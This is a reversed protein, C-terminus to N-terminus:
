KLLTLRRIQSFEGAVIRYFYVGSSFEDADWRVSHDGASMDRDILTEVKRGTIDFVELQVHDRQPLEFSITTSNNFPNPYAAFLSFERVPNDKGGIGAATTITFDGSQDEYDPGTANDQMVKVRGQATAINPVTWTYQLQTKPLEMVIPQWTTGGDSSFYLQWVCPGHDIVIHWQINVNDGANFNEGGAPYDLGVHAYATSIGSFIFLILINYYFRKM